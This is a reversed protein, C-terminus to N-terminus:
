LPKILFSSVHVVKVVLDSVEFALEQGEFLV